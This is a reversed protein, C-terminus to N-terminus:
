LICSAPLYDVFYTGRIEQIAPWDLLGASASGGPCGEGMGAACNYSSSGVHNKCTVAELLCVVQTQGPPKGPTTSFLFSFVVGKPTVEILLGANYVPQGPGATTNM